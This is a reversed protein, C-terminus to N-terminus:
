KVTGYADNNELPIVDMKKQDIGVVEYPANPTSLHPSTTKSRTKSICSICITVLVGLSFAMIFTISFTIGVATSVDISPLHSAAFHYSVPCSHLVQESYRVQLQQLQLQHHLNISANSTPPPSPTPAPGADLTFVLKCARCQLIAASCLRM